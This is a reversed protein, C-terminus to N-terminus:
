QCCNTKFENAVNNAACVNDLYDCVQIDPNFALNGPCYQEWKRGNACHYFGSCDKRSTIPKEYVGDHCTPDDIAANIMNMNTSEVIDLNEILRDIGYKQM